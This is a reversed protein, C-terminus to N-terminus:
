NYFAVMQHATFAPVTIETGADTCIFPLTIGQPELRVTHIYTVNRLLLRCEPLPLLEEIIETGHGRKVTPAYLLHVIYRHAFPDYTVTARALSPLNSQLIRDNGVATELLSTVFHRLVASGNSRYVAFIEHAFLLTQDTMVAASFGSAEPHNPTHQHSCFHGPARNFYPYYVEGASIAGPNAELETNAGYMVFPTSLFDPSFQADALVYTPSFKATTGIKAGFDVALNRATSASAIVKGGQQYFDAIKNALRPTLRIGEALLLVPYKSWDADPLPADFLFHGELLLRSAGIDGDQNKGGTAAATLLAIEALHAAHRCFEEKQRVERYARGILECTSADLKGSPHLQDGVCCRAGVALMAGCEYRLANPHKFGGFEGWSTHFKGTMGSFDKGTTRAFAASLPFHDYGWGGTPLSELELHSFFQLLEPRGPDVNGSNHFMPMDPRLKRAAANTRQYYRLLVRDSFEKRDHESEPALGAARMDAVCRPCVCQRQLVIDLFVGDADPYREVTEGILACLYDLYPSNFCLKQFGPPENNGGTWGKVGPPNIECWEPHAAAAVENGGASLYVPVRVNIGHAADIQARLLDFALSPHMVGIKTPHYSYGHHCVSFCTVSDVAALQLMQQFEKPDFASGVGPIEGSTHFDLHLQRYPLSM